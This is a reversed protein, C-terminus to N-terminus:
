RELERLSERMEREAWHKRIAAESKKSLDCWAIHKGYDEADSRRNFSKRSERVKGDVNWQAQYRKKGTALKKSRVVGVFRM